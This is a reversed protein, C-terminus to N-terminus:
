GFLGHVFWGSRPKYERFVWLRNGHHDRAIWYDRRCDAGDWWGTEIREPGELLCLQEVRCPRPAPLLWTPRASPMGAPIPGPAGPRTWRWANEPRHDACAALGCLQDDGLRARLRDLLGPWDEGNSPADLLDGQPRQRCPQSHAQVHLAVIEHELKVAELKLCLLRFLHDACFGPRSLGLHCQIQEERQEPLLSVSLASLLRDRIRLWRELRELVRRFAFLLAESHRTPAPLEFDEAFHEPPQWYALPLPTKGLLQDIIEPVAPGLRRRLEFRPLAVVQGLRELGLGALRRRDDAPLPLRSLPWRTLARQLGPYDRARAGAHAFLMAAAPNPAMGQKLVVGLANLDEHLAACLREPRHRYMGLSGGIELVVGDPVIALQNSYRYATLAIDENLQRELSPKRELCQLDPVLALADSLRQGSRVGCQRAARNVDIIRRSGRQLEYTVVARRTDIAEMHVRQLAQLSLAPCHIGLWLPTGPM